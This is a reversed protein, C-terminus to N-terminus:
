SKARSAVGSLACGFEHVLENLTNSARADVQQVLRRIRRAQQLIPVIPQHITSTLALQTLGTAQDIDGIHVAADAMYLRLVARAKTHSGPLAALAEALEPYAREPQHLLLKSTGVYYRLDLTGHAFDMGHRRDRESSYEAAKEAAAYATDFGDNNGMGASTRAHLAHLWARTTADSGQGAFYIGREILEGTRRLDRNHWPILSQAGLLWAGLGWARAEDAAAVAVAYWRDAQHHENLDFCAWARLGALRAALRVLREHHRLTHSQHLRASVLEMLVRIKALADAPPTQAFDADLRECALEAATLEGTSIGGQDLASALEILDLDASDRRYQTPATIQHDSELSLTNALEDPPEPTSPRRQPRRHRYFGLEADTHVDLVARFGDRRARGPWRTEGRELKGIDTEDLRDEKGHVRWQWTNVAEALEQRSMPRGSGTPSAKRLRANTLKANAQNREGM